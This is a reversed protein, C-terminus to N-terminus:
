AISLAPGYLKQFTGFHNRKRGLTLMTRPRNKYHEGLDVYDMFGILGQLESGRFNQALIQQFHKSEISM